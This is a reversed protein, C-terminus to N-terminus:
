HLLKIRGPQVSNSADFYIFDTIDPINNESQLDPNMWRMEAEMALILPRGLDMKFQSEKWMSGVHQYGLKRAVIREAEENHNKTYEEASALASLFDKIAHMRKKITDETGLLLWYFSQGGQASLSVANTGLKNSLESIFPEWTIVADVEGKSLAKVQESPSLDVKEVEQYPINQMVMLLDLCYETTSGRLIGIRKHRIDSIQSIGHDRRAVLKVIDFKCLSTIIRLGTRELIRRAAVVEACTGLDVTGTLLDKTTALGSESSKVNIKLRREDFYGRDEAIWILASLEKSDPIGLTLSELHEGVSTKPKSSDCGTLFILGVVLLTLLMMERKM